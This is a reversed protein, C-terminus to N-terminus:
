QQVNKIELNNELIYELTHMKGSLTM